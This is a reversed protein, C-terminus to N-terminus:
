SVKHRFLHFEAQDQIDFFPFYKPVLFFVVELQNYGNNGKTISSGPVKIGSRLASVKDGLNVWSAGNDFSVKPNVNISTTNVNNSESYVLRVKKYTTPM